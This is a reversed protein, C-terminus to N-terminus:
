IGMFDFEIYIVMPLFLINLSFLKIICYHTVIIKMLEM